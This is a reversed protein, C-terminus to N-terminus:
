EVEATLGTRDLMQAYSVGPEDPALELDGILAQVKMVLIGAHQDDRTSVLSVAQKLL